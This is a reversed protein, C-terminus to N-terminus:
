NRSINAMEASRSATAKQTDRIIRNFDGGEDMVVLGAATTGGPSTVRRALEQPDADSAAAMAAAGEVTACALRLAQDVSLGLATGGEALAGIFRYAFAPGSGSVAIIAHFDDESSLWECLGTPAFLADVAAKTGADAKSAFIATVGKGLMVPLNPMARIVAGADPFHDALTACESGALISILSTQSTIHPALSPALEDLLQPKIGLVLCDPSGQPASAVWAVDDIQRPAPDIVTVRRADLGTELWRRLLAGGMNGCGVMWIPGNGPWLAM